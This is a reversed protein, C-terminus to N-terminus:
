ARGEAIKWHKRLQANLLDMLMVLAWTILVYAFAQDYFMLQQANYLAGGIGGAGILGVVTSARMNWELRFLTHVIMPPFALPFMGFSAISVQSGGTAALAMVPESAVNEISEAYLKGFVGTSHLGLALAGAHWGIGATVVLILGWIVEPVARLLELFRRVPTYLWAPSLNRAAATGMPIAFVVALLTGGLAIMLTETILTPVHALDHAPISPPWMKQLRSGFFSWAIMHPRNIWASISGGVVFLLLLPPHRRVLWALKDFIAILITLMIVLTTVHRYDTENIASILETGIGGAAVAGVIVAARMASEFEYAGYTLLDNLRLPLLGFLAVSVSGAGTARLVDVPEADASVFLDAFIKGMAATYFMSLALLGAAPGIGVLMVCLIALTLDPIARLTALCSYLLRSGPLRAGVYLAMLLGAIGAFLMAGAAMEITQLLPVGEAKLYAVNVDPPFFLRLQSIARELGPM